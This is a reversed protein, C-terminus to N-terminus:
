KKTIRIYNNYTYPGMYLIETYAISVRKLEEDYITFPSAEPKRVKNRIITGYRGDVSMNAHLDLETRSNKRDNIM